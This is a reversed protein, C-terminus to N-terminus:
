QTSLPKKWSTLRARCLTELAAYETRWRAIDAHHEIDAWDEARREVESALTEIDGTWCGIALYHGTETRVLMASMSESGIPGVQLLDQTETLHAAGRIRANGDLHTDGSVHARGSVHANDYIHADGYVRANGCVRATQYIRANDYVHADGFIYANDFVRAAGYVRANNLVCADGSVLAGGYVCAGDHVWAQDTINTSTEVWGGLTGSQVGHEPLDRSARIRHLVTGDDLKKTEDTLTINSNM